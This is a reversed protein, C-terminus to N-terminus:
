SGPASTSSSAEDLHGEAVLVLDLPRGGHREVCGLGVQLEGNTPQQSVVDKGVFAAHDGGLDGLEALGDM